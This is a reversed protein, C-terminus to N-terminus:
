STMTRRGGQAIHYTVKRDQAKEPRRTAADTVADTLSRSTAGTSESQMTQRQGRCHFSRLGSETLRRLWPRGDGASSSASTAQGIEM